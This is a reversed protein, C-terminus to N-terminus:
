VIIKSAKKFVFWTGYVALAVALVVSGLALVGLESGVTAGGATFAWACFGLSALVTVSIFFVHFAKLSM